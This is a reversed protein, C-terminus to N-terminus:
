PIPLSSCVPDVNCDVLQTTEGTEPDVELFLGVGPAWYKREEAGPELPTFDRTVVCDNDCLLDALDEPVFEDLEPDSGFGYDISLIEAVDEAEGLAYEQRFVTGVQPAAFALVGPRAFERGAKWSGEIDVLEPEEPDDGVFTEFNLAIEGCYHVDGNSAQGYWDDTDEIKEGDEEVLDNVVVCTVGEILKTKDLVEVTITEDGGEFVWQNGVALPLYPNLNTFVTEFDAPDFDPDYRDEGLDGCLELRADYQDECEEAAEEAESRAEDKCERREDVDAVYICNGIAIWLDDELESHCANLAKRATRSCWNMALAPPAVLLGALIATGLLAGLGARDTAIEQASRGVVQPKKRYM